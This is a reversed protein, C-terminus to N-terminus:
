NDLHNRVIQMMREASEMERGQEIGQKFGHEFTQLTWRHIYAKIGESAQLVVFRVGLGLALIGALLGWARIMHSDHITGLIMLCVAAAASVKCKLLM